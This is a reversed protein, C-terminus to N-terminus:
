YKVVRGDSEAFKSLFPYGFIAKPRRQHGQAGRPAGLAGKAADRGGESRGTAGSYLSLSGIQRVAATINIM